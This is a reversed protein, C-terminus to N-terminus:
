YVIQDEKAINIDVLGCTACYYPFYSEKRFTAMSGGVVVSQQFECPCSTNKISGMAYGQVLLYISNISPSKVLVLSQDSCASHEKLSQGNLLLSMIKKMLYSFM